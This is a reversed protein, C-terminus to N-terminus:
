FASGFWIASQGLVEPAIPRSVTYFIRPSQYIEWRTLPDYIRWIESSNLCKNYMRAEYIAQSGLRDDSGIYYPGFFGFLRGTEQQINGASGSTASGVEVGNVYLRLETTKYTIAVFDPYFPGVGGSDSSQSHIGGWESEGPDDGVRISLDDGITRIHGELYNGTQFRVTIDSTGNDVDNAATGDVARSVLTADSFGGAYRSNFWFSVTIEDTVDLLDSGGSFGPYGSNAGTDWNAGFADAARVFESNTVRNLNRKGLLDPIKNATEAM